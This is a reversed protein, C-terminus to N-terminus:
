QGDPHDASCGRSATIALRVRGLPELTLLMHSVPGRVALVIKQSEREGRAGVVLILAHKGIPAAADVPAAPGLFNALIPTEIDLSTTIDPPARIALFPRRKELLCSSPKTKRPSM